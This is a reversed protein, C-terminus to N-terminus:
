TINSNKVVLQQALAVATAADAAYGDAGIDDAFRQTVPAGGIMVKVSDRLGNETLAGITKRMRDMTITLLASLAVLNASHERVAEIFRETAVNAGLDVVRFGNGLLMMAVLNKGIDHQDGEVTGIVVTGVPEVGRATLEPKIIEMCEQMVRQAKMVEPMYYEEALFREGVEVMGPVVGEYLIREVPIGETLARQTLAPAPNTMGRKYRHANLIGDALEHLIDNM